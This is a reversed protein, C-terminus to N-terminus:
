TRITNATRVYQWLDRFADDVVLTACWDLEENAHRPDAYYVPLDGARRFAMEHPIKKGSAREPAAILELISVGRGTGIHSDIFGTGGTVLIKKM